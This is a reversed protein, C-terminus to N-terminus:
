IYSDLGLFSSVGISNSRSKVTPWCFISKQMRLGYPNMAMLYKFDIFLHYTEINYENGKELIQRQALTPRDNIQRVQVSSPFASRRHQFVKVFVKYAINLLCINQYVRKAWSETLTKSAWVMQFVEEVADVM